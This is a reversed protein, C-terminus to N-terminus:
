NQLKTLKTENRSFVLISSSRKALVSESIFMHFISYKSNSYNILNIMANENSNSVRSCMWYRDNYLVIEGGFMIRM